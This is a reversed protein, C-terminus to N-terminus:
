PRETHPSRAAKRDFWLGGAAVFVLVLTLVRLPGLAVITHDPTSYEIKPPADHPQQAELQTYQRGQHQREIQSQRRGYKPGLTELGLLAMGAFLLLWFWPSDTIARRPENPPNSASDM